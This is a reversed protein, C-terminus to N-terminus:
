NEQHEDDRRTNTMAEAERLRAVIEEPNHRKRKM